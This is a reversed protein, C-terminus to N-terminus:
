AIGDGDDVPEAAKRQAKVPKAVYIVAPKGVSYGKGNLAAAIMERAPLKALEVAKVAADFGSAKAYERAALKAEAQNAFATFDDGNYVEFIKAM